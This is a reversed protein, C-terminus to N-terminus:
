YYNVDGASAPGYYGEVDVALVFRLVDGATVNGMIFTTGYPTSTGGPGTHNQLGYSGFAIAGGNVSLGIKSGYGASEGVFYATIPGSGTATFSYTVPNITGPNGYPTPLALVTASLSILGVAALSLPKMM